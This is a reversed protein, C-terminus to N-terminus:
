NQLRCALPQRTREAFALQATDVPKSPGILKRIAKETVGLRHAFNSIGERSEADRDYASAKRLYAGRSRTCGDRGACITDPVPARHAGRAVETQQAFGSEVLFLM